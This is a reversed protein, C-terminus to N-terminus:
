GLLSLASVDHHDELWPSPLKRRCWHTPSQIFELSLSQNKNDCTRKPCQSQKITCYKRSCTEIERTDNDVLSQCIVLHCSSLIVLHCSSLFVLLCSSLCVLLCSSLFVLLCSSLFVLLCSSLIVLHCSSLIVHHCSSMIVHHCPSMIVHHCSSM